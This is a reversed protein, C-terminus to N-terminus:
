SEVPRDRAERAAVARAHDLLHEVSEAFSYRPQWGTEGAFKGVDPIQLTVDAPRLLAPDQRSPIACRANEKLLDLFAGVKIM